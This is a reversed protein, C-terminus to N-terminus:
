WAFPNFWLEQRNFPTEASLLPNEIRFVKRGYLKSKTISENHYKYFVTDFSGDKIMIELGETIRQALEPYQPSVFFYYPWHYYLVLKEEILLDPYTEKREEYEVFVENIGRPFYDFRGQILMKFLTEYSSGTVINFNNHKFVKVDNWDFGQGPSYQKLEQLTTIGNFVDRNKKHILFIRYGLLGKRTPIRIPILEQEIVPDAGRWMINIKNGTKVEKVWRVENMKVRSPTLTYNGYTKKTKELALELLEYLDEFRTDTESQREPYIVIYKKDISNSKKEIGDTTDPTEKKIDRKCGPLILTCMLCLFIIKKM